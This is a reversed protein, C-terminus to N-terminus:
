DDDSEGCGCYKEGWEVKDGCESCRSYGDRDYYWQADYAKQELYEMCTPCNKADCYTFKIVKEGQIDNQCSHEGRIIAGCICEIKKSEIHYIFVEEKEAPESCKRKSAM